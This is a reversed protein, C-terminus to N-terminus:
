TCGKARRRGAGGLAVRWMGGGNHVKMRWEVNVGVKTYWHDLHCFLALTMFLDYYSKQVDAARKTEGWKLYFNPCFILQPLSLAAGCCLAVFHLKRFFSTESFFSSGSSAPLTTIPRLPPVSDTGALVQDNDTCHSCHFLPLTEDAVHIYASLLSHIHTTAVVGWSSYSIESEESLKKSLSISVFNFPAEQTCGSLM